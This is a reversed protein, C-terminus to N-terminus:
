LVDELADIVKVGGPHCCPRDVDALTM